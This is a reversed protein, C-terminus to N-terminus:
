HHKGDFRWVIHNHDERESDSRWTLDENDPLPTQPGWGHFDHPFGDTWKPATKESAPANAGGFGFGGLEYSGPVYPNYEGAFPNPRDNPAEDTPHRKDAM